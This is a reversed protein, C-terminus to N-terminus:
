TSAVQLVPKYKVSYDEYLELDGLKCIYPNRPLPLRIASKFSLVYQGYTNMFKIYRFKQQKVPIISNKGDEVVTSIVYSVRPCYKSYTPIRDHFKWVELLDLNAALNQLELVRLERLKDYEAGVPIETDWVQEYRKLLKKIAAKQKWLQILRM